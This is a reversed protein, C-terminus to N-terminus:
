RHFRKSVAYNFLSTFNKAMKFGIGTLGNPELYVRDDKVADMIKVAYEEPSISDLKQELNKSYLDDIKDFMRTKIGPTFLCLTSVGTGRLEQQLCDSFAWVAAKAAAYTSACPFHMVASVSAHNIIKGSKQAVMQPLLGRTLHVLANVNVQFMNYIDDLPQDELLGGTLLGANNFLVDIRKASMKKVLSEVGDRTILDAEVIEVSSAGLGSLKQKLQDDNKRIALLLHSKEKACAEAFALGIGRNAGTILVYKGKLEM